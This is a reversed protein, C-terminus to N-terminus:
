KVASVNCGGSKLKAILPWIGLNFSGGFKGNHPYNFSVSESTEM